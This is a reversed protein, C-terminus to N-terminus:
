AIPSALCLRNFFLFQLQWYDHLTLQICCRLWYKTSLVFNETQKQLTNLKDHSQFM